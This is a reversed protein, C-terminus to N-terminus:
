SKVYAKSPFTRIGCFIEGRGATNPRSNLSTSACISTSATVAPHGPQAPARGARSPADLRLAAPTCSWFM